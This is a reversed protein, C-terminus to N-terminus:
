EQRTSCSEEDHKLHEDVTPRPLIHAVELANSRVIFTGQMGDQPIVRVVEGSPQTPGLEHGSGHFKALSADNLTDLAVPFTGARSDFFGRSTKHMQSLASITNPCFRKPKLENVKWM